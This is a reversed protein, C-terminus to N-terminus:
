PAEWLSVVVEFDMKSTACACYHASPRLRYSVAGAKLIHPAAIQLRFNPNSVLTFSHLKPKTNQM